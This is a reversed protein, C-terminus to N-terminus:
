QPPDSVSTCTTDIEFYQLIRDMCVRPSLTELIYDRPSFTKYNEQMFAHAAEFEEYSTICIGCQESMYPVSTARMKKPINSAYNVRENEVEDYMSTANVVLLPVNCSMAEQLAYGQSEHADLVIMYKSSQLDKLYSEESYSGYRYIKFNIRNKTLFSLVPDVISRSRRKIYVLCDITKTEEAPIFRAVDIAYPFQTMPIRLNGVMEIYLEEVWKSLTNFVCKKEFRTELPGVIPGSPFVWFQPGYIVKIQQPFIDPDFYKTNLILIDYDFHHIRHDDNTIECVINKSNTMLVISQSIKAHGPGHFLLKM